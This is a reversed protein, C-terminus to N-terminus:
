ENEQAKNYRMQRMVYRIDEGYFRLVKYGFGLRSAMRQSYTQELEVLSLNTNIITPRGEVIRTNVINYLVSSSFNTIFESGLDDLVLLDCELVSNMNSAYSEKAEQNYSFKESELKDMLRQVPTYVVGFGRRTVEWAIALSLHTKGLGTKGMMLLSQSNKDFRKAYDMCFDYIEKMRQRPIVGGEGPKDPYFGLNFQGFSCSDADCAFSLSAFAQEKLIAHFCECMDVGVYGTDSCKECYHKQKLYDSPYGNEVLLKERQKQLELNAKGLKAILEGAKEPSSVVTKSILVGTEIMKHQIEQVKPIKSYVEQQRIQQSEISDSKRRDLISWAKEYIERPYGM